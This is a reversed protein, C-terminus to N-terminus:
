KKILRFDGNADRYFGRILIQSKKGEAEIRGSEMMEDHSWGGAIVRGKKDVVKDMPLTLSAYQADTLRISDLAKKNYLSIWWAGFADPANPPTTEFTLDGATKLDQRMDLSYIAAIEERSTLFGALYAILMKQLKKDGRRLGYIGLEIGAPHKPDGYINLEVDDNVRFSLYPVNRFEGVDVATAPIEVLSKITDHTRLDNAIVRWPPLDGKRTVDTFMDGTDAEDRIRVIQSKPYINEGFEEQLVVSDVSNRLILGRVTRGDKLELSDPALFQDTVAHLPLAPLVLVLLAWRSNM